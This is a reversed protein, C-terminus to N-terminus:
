DSGRRRKEIRVFLEGLSGILMGLSGFVFLWIAGTELQKSFFMVSGVFFLLNGTLGIFLHIWPFEHLFSGLWRRSSQTRQTVTSGPDHSV